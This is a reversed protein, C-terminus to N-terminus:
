PPLEKPVVYLVARGCGPSTGRWCDIDLDAVLVGCTPINDVGVLSLLNAFDTLGPNHGVFMVHQWTEDLARVRDLLVTASAEYLAPDSLVRGTAGPLAAALLQATKRARRAPSVLVIDPMIGREALYLGMRAADGKGRGNLPRDIDALATNKWSSKAHRVLTLRKM